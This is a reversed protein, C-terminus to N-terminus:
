SRRTIVVSWAPFVNVDATVDLRVQNQGQGGVVRLKSGSPADGSVVNGAIDSFAENLSGAESFEFGNLRSTANTVAHTLEHALVGEVEHPELRNWLGQTVAVVAHKQNRGTAFANPV